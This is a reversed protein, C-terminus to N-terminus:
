AVGSKKTEPFRTSVIKEIQVQNLGHKKLLVTLEVANSPNETSIATVIKEMRTAELEFAKLVAELDHARREAVDKLKEKEDKDKFGRSVWGVGAGIAAGVLVLAAGIAKGSGSM